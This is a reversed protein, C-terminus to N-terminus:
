SCHGQILKYLFIVKEKKEDVDAAMHFFSYYNLSVFRIEPYNSFEEILVHYHTAFITRCKIEQIM